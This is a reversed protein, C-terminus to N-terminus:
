QPVQVRVITTGTRAEQMEYELIQTTITGGGPGPQVATIKLYTDLEVNRGGGVRDRISQADEPQVKWIQATRGNAFKLSVKQGFGAFEVVSSPALARVTFEGYTPDYDSLNASSLSLRIFGVGGVAALGAELEGRIATRQAAKEIAPVFKVRSDQEIWSDIPPTIGALHYYLFVMTNNDPNVLEGTRGGLAPGTAASGAPAAAVDQSSGPSAASAAGAVPQGAASPPESSGCAAVLTTALLIGPLSRM